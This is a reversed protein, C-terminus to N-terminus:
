SSGTAPGRTTPGLCGAKRFRAGDFLLSEIRVHDRFYELNRVRSLACAPYLSLSPATHASLPVEFADCLAAVRLFGSISACRTMDAQLVDVAEMELM